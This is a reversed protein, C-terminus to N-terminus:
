CGDCGGSDSSTTSIVGCSDSDSKGANEGENLGIVPGVLILALLPWGWGSIDFFFMIATVLLIIGTFVKAFILDNKTVTTM